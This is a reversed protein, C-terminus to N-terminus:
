RWENLAIFEGGLNWGPINEIIQIASVIQAYSMNKAPNSDQYEALIGSHEPNAEHLAMFDETNRTVLVRGTQQAHAFVAEDPQSTLEAETVTEIDHGAERLLRVFIKAMSDEDLLLKM